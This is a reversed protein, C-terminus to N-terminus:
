EGRGGELHKSKMEEFLRDGTHNGGLRNYVKHTEEIESWESAPISDQYEYETYYDYLQRRLLIALGAKIAKLESEETEKASRRKVNLQRVKNALYGIVIGVITTYIPMIYTSIDM